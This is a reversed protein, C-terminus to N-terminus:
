DYQALEQQLNFIKNQLEAKQKKIYRESKYKPALRELRKKAEAVIEIDHENLDEIGIDTIVLSKVVSELIDIRNVLRNFDDESM